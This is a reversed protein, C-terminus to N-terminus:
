SGIYQNIMNEYKSWGWFIVTKDKIPSKSNEESIRQLYDEMNKWMCNFYQIEKQPIYIKKLKLFSSPKKSFFTDSACKLLEGVEVSVKEEIEQLRSVLNERLHYNEKNAEVLGQELFRKLIKQVMKLEIGTDLSIQEVTKLDRGIGELVAREILLLTMM